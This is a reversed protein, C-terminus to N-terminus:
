LMSTPDFGTASATKRPKRETKARATQPSARLERLKALHTELEEHSLKTLDTSILHVLPAERYLSNPENMTTTTNQNITPNSIIM